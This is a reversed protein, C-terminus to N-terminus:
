KRIVTEAKFVGMSLMEICIREIFVGYKRELFIHGYCDVRAVGNGHTVLLSIETKLRSFVRSNVAQLQCNIQGVEGGGRKVLHSQNGHCGSETVMAVM